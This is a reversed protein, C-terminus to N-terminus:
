SPKGRCYKIDSCLWIANMISQSLKLWQRAQVHINADTECIPPFLWHYSVNLKFFTQPNWLYIYCMWGGNEVRIVCKIGSREGKKEGVINTGTEEGRKRHGGKDNKEKATQRCEAWEMKGPLATHPSCTGTFLPPPWSGRVLHTQHGAEDWHTHPWPTRRNEEEMIWHWAKETEVVFDKWIMAGLFWINISVWAGACECMMAMFAWCMFVFALKISLAQRSQQGKADNITKCCAHSLNKLRPM